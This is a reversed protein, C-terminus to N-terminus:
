APGGSDKDRHRHRGHGFIHMLPCALLLAWFLGMAIHSQHQVGYWYCAAALALLVATAVWIKTRRSMGASQQPAKISM